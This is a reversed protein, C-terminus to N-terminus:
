GAHYASNGPQMPSVTVIGRCEYVGGPIRIRASVTDNPVIVAVSRATVCGKPSALGHSVGLRFSATQGPAVSVQGYKTHGFFDVTTHKPHTPLSGGGKSLFQVGPYGITTCTSKGTNRIAFGLLGHGTAGQGGLYILQV